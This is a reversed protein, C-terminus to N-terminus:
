NLDTVSLTLPLLNLNARSPGLQRVQDYQWPVACLHELLPREHTFPNHFLIYRSYERYGLQRLFVDISKMQQENGPVQGCTLKTRKLVFYLSSISIEGYHLHPSLRSTCDSYVMAKQSKFYALKGCLFDNWVLAASNSGPVWKEKLHDCTEAEQDSLIKVEDLTERNGKVTETVRPLAVPCPLPMYPEYMMSEVVHSWFSEFTCFPRGKADLIEWPEYMLDAGFSEVHVNMSQLLTRIGKDRVLSIPDYLHNFFVAEIKRDRVFPGMAEKSTQAHFLVLRSGLGELKRSLAELSHRLWWRSSLGPTFVGEENPAWIFFPVVERGARLAAMLAPNDDLRLDRRFWVAVRGMKNSPVVAPGTAVAGGGGVRASGGEAKNQRKAEGQGVSFNEEGGELERKSVSAEAANAKASEGERAM